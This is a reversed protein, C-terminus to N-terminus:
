VEDDAGECVFIFFVCQKRSLETDKPGKRLGWFIKMTIILDTRRQCMEKIVCGRYTSPTRDDFQLCCVRYFVFMEKESRGDAYEEATDFM